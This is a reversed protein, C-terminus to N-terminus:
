KYIIYFNNLSGQLAIDGSFRDSVTFAVGDLEVKHQTTDFVAVQYNNHTMLRFPKGKAQSPDVTNQDGAM